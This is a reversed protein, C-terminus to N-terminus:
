FPRFYVMVFATAVLALTIFSLVGRLHAKRYALGAMATVGLWCVLKVIVWGSSFPIKNISLMAFGSVLMLLAAIGTVMMTRKRNEPAPNAFAMFTHASLVALSLLHLVQYYPLREM